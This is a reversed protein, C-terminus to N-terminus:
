RDRTAWWAPVEALPMPRAYIYGQIADCGLHELMELTALDEVGEAIAELEFNHALDIVSRVIQEGAGNNLMNQVFTKDIKLEDLPMRQLYALSSYGTGFDDISLRVNQQKLEQMVRLSQEVDVMIASETIELTLRDPPIGWTSIARAVMAPLESDRLQSPSANVAISLDIGARRLESLQRLSTNLVFTTLASMMGNNEAMEVAIAPSIMRACRQNRWRLLAEAARCGGSAVDRQPQFWVELENAQLAAQFDDLMDEGDDMAGNAAPALAFASGNSGALVCANDAARLLAEADFRETPSSWACGVCPRMRFNDNGIAIPAEFTGLLRNIAPRVMAVDTVGPLAVMLHEPGFRTFRDQPRLAETVRRGAEADCARALPRHMLAAARDSRRLNIVLLAVTAASGTAGRRPDELWRVFDHRELEISGKAAVVRAPPPHGTRRSRSFEPFEM